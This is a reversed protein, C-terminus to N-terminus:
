NNKRTAVENKKGDTFGDLIELYGSVRRIRTIDTSGCDTCCDFIGHCGCHNCIDKPFNIGFYRVGSQTAIEILEKIGETNGIPIENLEIYSISGGNNLEHFPGEIQLKRRCTLGSNVNVHFSNTYFGKSFIDISPKYKKRDIKIFRGSIFEGSTALLSFNLKYKDRMQNCFTRMEKVFSLAMNYCQKDEYYRKGTILEMMESLGIYGISLTGHKFVEAVNNFPVCWMQRKQNIPFDDVNKECLQYFRKLLIDKSTKAIKHWVSLVRAYKQKASEQNYKQCVDLAIRPLNISINCINGRGIAGTCEYLDDVVRTRCGMVSLKEPNIKKDSKCDCLLYTPIMKKATCLMAKEFLDYNRDNKFRNISSAVKFVINPKYITEGMKEFQDIVSFAIFKALPSKALGINLTVYYSTQGMRTHTNNCWVILDGICEAILSRNATTDKISMKELITAIDNDFNALAMGGSQENGMDAFLMKIYGFLRVIKGNESIDKFDEYPFKKVIDFTLCNYTSDFADLDHIHIYGEKHLHRQERSLRKLMASKKNKEGRNYIEGIWSYRNAANDKNAQKM